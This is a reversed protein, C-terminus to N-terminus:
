YRLKVTYTPKLQIIFTFNTKQPLRAKIPLVSESTCKKGQCDESSSTAKSLTMQGGPCAECALNGTATKYYGFRCATCNDQSGNLEYGPGCLALM